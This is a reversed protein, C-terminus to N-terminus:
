ESLSFPNQKTGQGGTIKITSKLTISPRVARINDMISEDNLFNASDIMWSNSSSYPTVLWIGESDFIGVGQQSAFMEGYRPLGVYGAWISSTKECNLTTELGETKCIALKYDKNNSITGLYYNGKVMMNKYTSNLLNYWTNNLYYDWYNDNQTNSAAGFNSTSAFLKEIIENNDDRIYDNKNLKTIGNEVSVIRYLENNFTVYEGSIRTNLTTNPIAKEKDGNLIYPDEKTGNGSLFTINTNLNVTPRVGFRYNAGFDSNSRDLYDIHWIHIGVPNLLFWDYNILLYSKEDSANKYSMYYEYTNLLGVPATIVTTEPLKTIIDPAESANWKSDTVIINEYNYLTDLFDENLWQYMYSKDTESTYFSSNGSQNYAISTIIDDTIMKMTGDPYVATIRWLKGSYWVYNFNICDKDGSLYTINDEVITPNCTSNRISNLIAAKVSGKTLIDFSEGTVKIKSSFIKGSETYYYDVWFILKCDITVGAEFDEYIYFTSDDDINGLNDITLLENNVYFAYRVAGLDINTNKNIELQIKANISVNSTNTITFTYPSNLLGVEDIKPLEGSLNINGDGEEFDISILGTDLGNIREDQKHYIFYISAFSIGLCIIITLILFMINKKNSIKEKM